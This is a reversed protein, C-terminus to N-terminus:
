VHSAHRSNLSFSSTGGSPAYKSGHTDRSDLPHRGLCKEKFRQESLTGSTDEKLASTDDHLDMM